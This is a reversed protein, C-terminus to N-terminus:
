KRNIDGTIITNGSANRGIAVSREGSAIVTDGGPANQALWGMRGMQSHLDAVVMAALEDPTKFVSVTHKNKLEQILADLKTKGPAPEIFEPPVVSADKLYILVPINRAVARRYEDETIGSGVACLHRRVHQM